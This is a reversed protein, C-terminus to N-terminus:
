KDLGLDMKLSAHQYVVFTNPEPTWIKEGSSCQGVCPLNTNIDRPGDYEGVPEPTPHAKTDDITMVKQTAPPNDWVGNVGAIVFLVSAVFFTLFGLGIKRKSSM